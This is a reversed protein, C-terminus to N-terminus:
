VLGSLDYVMVGGGLGGCLWGVGCFGFWWSGGRRRSVLWGVVFGNKKLCWSLSFGRLVGSEGAWVVFVEGGRFWVLGVNASVKLRVVQM